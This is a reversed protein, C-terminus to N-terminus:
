ESDRHALVVLMGVWEAILQAFRSLVALSFGVDYPLWPLLLAALTAERVVLGGPSFFALFGVIWAIGTAAIMAIPPVTAAPALASVMTLNILGNLCGMVLFYILAWTLCKIRWQTARLCAIKEALSNLKRQLLGRTAYGVPILLMIAVGASIIQRQNLGSGGSVEAVFTSFEQWHFVLGIGGVALAALITILLELLMSATATAVPVGIRKAGVARSTYGWIGGPLWRRSEAHLWLKTTPLVAVRHGLGHLVLAWGIPNVIRYVIALSTAVLFATSTISGTLQYTANLKWGTWMMMALVVLSTIRRALSGLGVRPTIPTIVSPTALSHM